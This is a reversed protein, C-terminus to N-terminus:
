ARRAAVFALVTAVLWALPFGVADGVTVGHTLATLAFVVLLVFSLFLWLAMLSARVALRLAFRGLRGIEEGDRWLPPLERLAHSLDRDSRAVLAAELRGDLEDLSLRGALYHRRLHAAVLERDANGVLGVGVM